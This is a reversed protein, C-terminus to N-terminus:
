HIEPLIIDGYFKILTGILIKKNFVFYGWGIHPNRLIYTPFEEIFNM